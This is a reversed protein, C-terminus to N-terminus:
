VKMHGVFPDSYSITRTRRVTLVHGDDGFDECGAHHRSLTFHENSDRFVKYAAHGSDGGNNPVM